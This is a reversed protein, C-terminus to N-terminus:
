KSKIVSECASTLFSASPDQTSKVKNGEIVAYQMLVALFSANICDVRKKKKTKKIKWTKYTSM